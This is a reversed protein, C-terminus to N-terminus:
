FAPWVTREASIGRWHLKIRQGSRINDPSVLNNDSAIRQAFGGFGNPVRGGHFRKVISWLNDGANVKYSLVSHMLYSDTLIFVGLKDVLNHLFDMDVHSEGLIDLIRPSKKDILATKVFEFSRVGSGESCAFPVNTVFWFYDERHRKYDTSTVYAKALFSRFEDLLNSAKSYGKSEGFVEFSRSPQNYVGNFDFSYNKPGRSKFSRKEPEKYVDFKNEFGPVSAQLSAIFVDLYARGLAQNVEGPDAV